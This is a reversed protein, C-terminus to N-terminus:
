AAEEDTATTQPRDKTHITNTDALLQRDPDPERAAAPKAQTSDQGHANNTSANLHRRVTRTSCGVAAAIQGQNWDPHEGVLRRVEEKM